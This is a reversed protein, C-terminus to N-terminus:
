KRVGKTKAHKEYFEPSVAESAGITKKAIGRAIDLRDYKTRPSSGGKKIRKLAEMQENIARTHATDQVVENITELHKAIDHKDHTLNKADVKSQIAPMQKHLAHKEADSMSKVRIALMALTDATNASLTVQSTIDDVLASAQKSTEDDIAPSQFMQHALHQEIVDLEVHWDEDATDIIEDMEAQLQELQYEKEAQNDAYRPHHKVESMKNEIRSVENDLQTEKSQLTPFEKYFETM